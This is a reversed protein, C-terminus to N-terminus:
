KQNNKLYAAIQNELQINTNQLKALELTKDEDFKNMQGLTYNQTPLTKIEKKFTKPNYVILSQNVLVQDSTPDYNLTVKGAKPFANYTYGKMKVVTQFPDAYKANVTSTNVAKNDYYLTIGKAFDDKYKYLSKPNKATGIFQDTYKDNLFITIASKGSDNGAIPSEIVNFVPAKGKEGHWSTIDNLFQPLFQKIETADRSGSINDKNPLGVIATYSGNNVLTSIISHANTLGPNKPELPTLNNYALADGHSYAGTGLGHKSDLLVGDMKNYTTYFTKNLKEYAVDANGAGAYRKNYAQKFAAETNMFGYPSLLLDADKLLYNGPGAQGQLSKVIKKNTTAIFENTVNKAEEAQQVKHILSGSKNMYASIWSLETSPNKTQDLSNITSNFVSSATKKTAALNNILDEKTKIKAWNSGYTNNLYNIAATNKTETAAFKATNFAGFLFDESGAKSQQRFQDVTNQNKISLDYQTEDGTTTTTWPTNKIPTPGPAFEGSKVGAKHDELEMKLSHEVSIQRLKNEFNYDAMYKANRLSLDSTHTALAFPEASIEHKYGRLSMTGAIKILDNNELESMAAHDARFRLIELEKSDANNHIANHKEELGTVVKDIGNKTELLKTLRDDDDPTLGSNEKQKTLATITEGVEDALGVFHNYSKTVRKSGNDIMDNLYAMESAEKSGYKAIGAEVANKRQVYSETKYNAKVRPDDGYALSYLSYLGGKVLDGNTNKVIYPGNISEQTVNYDLEKAMKIADKQWDYYGTYDPMNFGLAEEDTSNKFEEAKYQLEQLGTDWAKETCKTPDTCNKLSEHKSLGNHYKKTKVMDNVMNKDDYFPQFVKNAADVNQQLSLDLGSIKKINQDINKFFADKRAIDSDRMMPSNYLSTYVSSLQDYANDYRSQRTQLVNSLFNYDPKFSQIQPIYDTLGQIYTSM